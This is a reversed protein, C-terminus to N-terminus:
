LVSAGPSAPVVASVYALPSGGEVKGAEYGSVLSGYVTARQGAYADLDM